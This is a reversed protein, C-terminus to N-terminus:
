ISKNILDKEHYRLAGNGIELVLIVRIGEQIIGSKHFGFTDEIFVKGKKGQFSVIDNPFENEIMKDNYLKLSYFNFPKITHTKKVFYHRGNIISIDNLFIFIKFFKKYRCDSHFTQANADIEKKTIGDFNYSIFVNSSYSINKNGLYNKTINKILDSNFISNIYKASNNPRIIIRGNKIKENKILSKIYIEQSDFKKSEPMVENSLKNLFEKDLCQLNCFGEEQLNNFVEKKADSSLYKEDFIIFEKKETYNIFKIKKLNRFYPISFFVRVIFLEVLHLYSNKEFFKQKRIMSPVVDKFFIYVNFATRKLVLYHYNFNM